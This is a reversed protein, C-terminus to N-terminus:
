NVGMQIGKVHSYCVPKVVKCLFYLMKEGQSCLPILDLSRRLWYQESSVCLIEIFGPTGASRM